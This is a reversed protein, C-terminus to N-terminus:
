YNEAFWDILQRAISIKPPIPPLNRASYWAAKVIESNDVNIRGGGYDAIFGVMLSNPFPWPQSGFYRINEVTIGVEEYVERAVCEELSEGPEAFGALVSYFGNKFRRNSGLLIQNDKIVAVIIAPSVRPYNILRCNPCIKARESQKDETAHGCRGCFQHNQNWDVLQNARGAVWILEEELRGFLQRLGKFEFGDPLNRDHLLEAAYCPLGDLSGLYQKHIPAIDFNALDRNRPILQDADGAKILLRGEYFVFWMSRTSEAAPLIFDPNFPM